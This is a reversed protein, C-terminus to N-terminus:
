GMACKKTDALVECAPNQAKLKQDTKVGFDSTPYNEKILDLIKGAAIAIVLDEFKYM